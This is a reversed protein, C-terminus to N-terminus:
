GCVSTTLSTSKKFFYTLEVKVSEINHNRVIQEFIQNINKGYNM